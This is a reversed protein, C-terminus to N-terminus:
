IEREDEEDMLFFIGAFFIILFATLAMFPITIFGALNVWTTTCPIGTDCVASHSFLPTKQLLYHYSSVLTGLITFPLVYHFVGQDRRLLGILLILALPYM